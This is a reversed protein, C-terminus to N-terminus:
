FHPRAPLIEVLITECEKGSGRCGGGSDGDGRAVMGGGRRGVGGSGGKWLVGECIGCERETEM